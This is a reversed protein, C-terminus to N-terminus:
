GWLEEDTPIKADPLVRAIRTINLLHKYTFNESISNNGWSGCGLTSTPALGNKFSGGNTTACPENVVVRSVNMEIGFRDIHEDNVSHIVVSHGMGEITLNHKSISIAEDFEGYPFFAIVPFMKEKRLAGDLPEDACDIGILVKGEPVTIGAAAAIGQVTKGVMHKSIRGEPFLVARLKEVEDKKAIYTKQAEFEKLVSAYQDKPIMVAQEGSCIIGNDFIRGFITKEVATKVDIGKDFVCQVNGPGVGFSPKGSSYASRVMDPGGTAVVVDVLSMLEKTRDVTPEDVSLLIDMPPNLDKWSKKVLEVFYKTCNATRPHPSLVISNRGKIASMANAMPTVIPNTCPQIAGVVGVPKAIETIGTKPDKSIVGISKKGKLSYWLIRAKGKKKLIKHELTGMGSEEVAMKSFVEANDYVVKGIRKVLEDVQEQSYKALLAQAKRSRVVLDKVYADM